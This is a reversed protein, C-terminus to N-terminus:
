PHLGKFTIEGKEQYFPSCFDLSRTSGSLAANMESFFKLDCLRQHYISNSFGIEPKLSIEVVLFTVAFKKLAGSVQM